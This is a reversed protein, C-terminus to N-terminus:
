PASGHCILTFDYITATTGDDNEGDSLFSTSSTAGGGVDVGV